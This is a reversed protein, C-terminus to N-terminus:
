AVASFEEIDDAQRAEWYIYALQAIAKEEMHDLALTDRANANSPTELNMQITPYAMEPYM